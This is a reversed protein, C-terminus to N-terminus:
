LIGDLEIISPEIHMPHRLSCYRGPRGKPPAKMNVDVDGKRFFTTLKTLNTVKTVDVDVDADSDDERDTPPKGSGSKGARV